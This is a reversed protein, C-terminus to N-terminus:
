HVGRIVGGRVWLLRCERAKPQKGCQGTFLAHGYPSSYFAAALVLGVAAFIAAMEWKPIM